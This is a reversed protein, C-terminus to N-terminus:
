CAVATSQLLVALYMLRDSLKLIRTAARWVNELTGGEVPSLVGREEPVLRM